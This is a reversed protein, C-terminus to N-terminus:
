TKPPARDGILADLLQDLQDCQARDLPSLWQQQLSCLRAMAQEARQAGLESLQVLQSRGDDPNAPRSVLGAQELRKLLKTLGGSSMLLAQCLATPSICHPPAQRKLAALVDFEAPM